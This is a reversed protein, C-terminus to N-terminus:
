SITTDPRGERGAPQFRRGSIMTPHIRVYHDAAGDLAWAHLPLQRVEAVEVPDAIEGARGQVLVSWGSRGDRDYYDVEFAVVTGATAAALKTGSGTRFVVDGDCMVFNVPLIVPLAHISIAIRGVSEGALHALCEQASLEQLDAAGHVSM